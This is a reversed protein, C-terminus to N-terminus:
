WSFILWFFLLQITVWCWSFTVSRSVGSSFYAFVRIKFLLLVGFTFSAFYFFSHRLLFSINAFIIFPPKFSLVDCYRFIIVFPLVIVTDHIKASLLFCQYLFGHRSTFSHIFSSSFFLKQPLHTASIIFFCHIKMLFNENSESM